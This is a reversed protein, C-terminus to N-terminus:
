EDRRWRASYRSRELLLVSLAQGIKAGVIALIVMSGLILWGILDSLQQGDPTAKLVIAFGVLPSAITLCLPLVLAFIELGTLHTRKPDLTDPPVEKPKVSRMALWRLPVYLVVGIFFLIALLLFIIAADM